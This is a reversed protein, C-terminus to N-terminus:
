DPDGLCGEIDGVGAVDPGTGGHNALHQAVANQSIHILVVPNTESSTHHCVFEKGLPDASAIGGAFVLAGALAAAAVGGAIVARLRRSM